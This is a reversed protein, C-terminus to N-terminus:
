STLPRPRGSTDAEAGGDLSFGGVVALGKAGWTSSGRLEGFLRSRLRDADEICHASESRTQKIYLAYPCVGVIM